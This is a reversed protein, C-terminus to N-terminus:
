KYYAIYEFNYIEDNQIIDRIKDFILIGIPVRNRISMRRLRRWNTRKATELIRWFSHVGIENRKRRRPFYQRVCRSPCLDTLHCSTIFRDNELRILLRHPSLLSSGWRRNPPLPPHHALPLFPKIHLVANLEIERCFPNASILNM